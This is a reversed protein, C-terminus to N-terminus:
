IGGPSQCVTWGANNILHFILCPPTLVICSFEISSFDSLLIENCANSGNILASMDTEKEEFAMLHPLVLFMNCGVDASNESWILPFEVIGQRCCLRCMIHQKESAWGALTRTDALWHGTVDRAQWGVCCGALQRHACANAQTAEDELEDLRPWEYRKPIREGRHGFGFRLTHKDAIGQKWLGKASKELPRFM